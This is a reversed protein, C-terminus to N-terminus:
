PRCVQTRRWAAAGQGRNAPRTLNFQLSWRDWPISSQPSGRLAGLADEELLPLTHICMCTHIHVCVCVCVGREPAQLQLLAWSFPVLGM